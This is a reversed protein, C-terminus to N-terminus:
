RNGVRSVRGKKRRQERKRAEEEARRLEHHEIVRFIEMVKAPQEMASGPYPLVGNKYLRFADVFPLWRREFFNGICRKFQLAGNELPISHFYGPMEARCGKSEQISKVYAEGDKRGKGQKLCDTCNYRSDAIAKLTAQLGM